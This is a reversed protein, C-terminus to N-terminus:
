ALNLVTAIKHQVRHVELPHEMLFTKRTLAMAESTPDAVTKNPMQHEVFHHDIQYIKRTSVMGELILDM